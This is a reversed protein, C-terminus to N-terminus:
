KINGSTLPAVSDTVLGKLNKYTVDHGDLTSDTRKETVDKAEPAKVTKKDDKKQPLTSTISSVNITTGDVKITGQDPKTEKPEVAKKTENSENKDKINHQTLPSVADTILGKLAGRTVDHGDLTHDVRKDNADTDEVKTANTTNKQAATITVGEM